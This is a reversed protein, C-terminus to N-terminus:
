GNVGGLYIVQGTIFSSKKNLFFEIVNLVDNFEGFRKIAQQNLLTDIKDKPVNKILDTPVPTPGIANITIGFESLEKAGVQTLNILAAKSAAYVAEGELRLPTAVTAFNVIRYPMSNKLSEDLKKYNQVMIKSVERLFLFTGFVNTSFINHMTKFPTTLIHNMSAIGANNLLVDIKGFEKKITRIMSVVAMEDGVDLEFHRYNPHVISSNGRSCGCVIDGLGLYYQSLEKGIGKRTGTIVIIRQM